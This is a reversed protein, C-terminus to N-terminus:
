CSGFLTYSSANKRENPKDFCAPSALQSNQHLVDNSFFWQIKTLGRFYGNFVVTVQPDWQFFLSKKGERITWGPGCRCTDVRTSPPLPATNKAFTPLSAPAVCGPKGLNRGLAKQGLVATPRLIPFYQPHALSIQIVLQYITFM